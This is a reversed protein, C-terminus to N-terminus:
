IIEYVNYKNNKLIINNKIKYNHMMYNSKINNQLIVVYFKKSKFYINKYEKLKNIVLTSIGKGHYNHHIFIMLQINKKDNVMPHIGSLGIVSNKNLIAIYLYNHIYKNKHDENSYNILNNVYENSWINGDGIWKMINKDSCIKKLQKIQNTTLEFLYKYRINM